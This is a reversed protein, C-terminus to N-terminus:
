NLMSVPNFPVAFGRMYSGEVKLFRCVSNCFTTSSEGFRLNITEVKRMKVCHLIVSFAAPCHQAGSLVDEWIM